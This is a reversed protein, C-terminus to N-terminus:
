FVFFLKLIIYFHITNLCATLDITSVAQKLIIYFHITNLSYSDYHILLLLKLIIYFHITNLCTAVAYHEGSLKLIIYFHITNLIESQKVQKLLTQSHHSFTHYEFLPTDM